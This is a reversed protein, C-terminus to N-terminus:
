MDETMQRSLDSMTLGTSGCSGRSADTLSFVEELKVKGGMKKLIRFQCIRTGKPITVTEKRLSVVPMFWQDEEGCFTEDIVGVGNTQIIGFHKFTSSRPAVLAEYGDPLKMCVGLPINASDFQNLTIDEAACLDIWDGNKFKVPMETDGLLKIKIVKKNKKSM